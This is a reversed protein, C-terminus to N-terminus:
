LKEVAVVVILWSCDLLSPAFASHVVMLPTEDKDALLMPWYSLVLDITDKVLDDWPINDRNGVVSNVRHLVIPQKLPLLDKDVAVSTLMEFALQFDRHVSEVLPCLYTSM